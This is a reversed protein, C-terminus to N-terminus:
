PGEQEQLGKLTLNLGRRKLPRPDVPFRNQNRRAWACAEKNLADSEVMTVKHYTIIEFLQYLIHVLETGPTLRGVCIIPLENSINPHWIELPEFWTLMQLPLRPDVSRLYDSPFRIGVVFKNAESITGNDSRVLGKCSFKALYMSPPASGLPTLELLDSQKALEMGAEFQRELFGAFVKDKM